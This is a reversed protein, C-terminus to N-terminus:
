KPAGDRQYKPINVGYREAIRPDEKSLDLADM